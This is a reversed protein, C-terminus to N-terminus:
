SKKEYTNIIQVDDFNPVYIEFEYPNMTRTRITQEVDIVNQNPILGVYIKNGFGEAVQVETTWSAGEYDKRPNITNIGRYVKLPYQINLVYDIVTQIKEKARDETYFDVGDMAYFDELYYDPTLIDNNVSKNEFEKNTTFYNKKVFEEVSKDSYGLLKGVYRAEDPTNDSVFGQRAKMYDYLKYADDEGQNNYIIYSVDAFYTAGAKGWGGSSLSKIYEKRVKSRKPFVPIINLGKSKLDEIEGSTLQVYGVNRKGDLVTQIAGEDTYAESADIVENLIPKWNRVKDIQERIEKSMVM